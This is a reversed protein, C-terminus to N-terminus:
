FDIILNLLLRDLRYDILKSISLELWYFLLNWKLFFFDLKCFLLQGNNNIWCRWADGPTTLRPHTTPAHLNDIRRRWPTDDTHLSFGGRGRRRTIISQKRPIVADSAISLHSTSTSHCGFWNRSLRLMGAVGVVSCPRNLEGGGLHNMQMGNSPAM